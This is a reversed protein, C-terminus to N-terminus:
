QQQAQQGKSDARRGCRGAFLLLLGVVMRDYLNRRHFLLYNGNLRGMGLQDEPHLLVADELGQMVPGEDGIRIGVQVIEGVAGIVVAASRHGIGGGAAAIDALRGEMHLIGIAVVIRFQVIGTVLGMFFPIDDRRFDKQFIINRKQFDFEDIIRVLLLVDDDGMRLNQVAASLGNFKLVIGGAGQIQIGVLIIERMEVAAPGIFHLHVAFEQGMIGFDDFGAAAGLDGLAVIRREQHAQVRVPQFFPGALDNGAGQCPAAVEAKGELHVLGAPQIDKGADARIGRGVLQGGPLSEDRGIEDIGKRLPTGALSGPVQMGPGPVIPDILAALDIGREQVAPFAGIEGERGFGQEPHDVIGRGHTEFHEDQVVAPEGLVIGAVPVVSAEAVPFDIRGLKRFSNIIHGRIGMVLSQPEADPDLRLHDIGLAVQGVRMRFPDHLAGAPFDVLAPVLPHQVQAIRGHLVEHEADEVVRHLQRVFDVVDFPVAVPDHGIRAALVQSRLLVTEEHFIRLADVVHHAPQTFFIGVDDDLAARRAAAPHIVTGQLIEVLDPGAVIRVGERAHEDLVRRVENIRGTHHSGM